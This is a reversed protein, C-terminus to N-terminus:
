PALAEFVRRRVEIENQGLRSPAQVMFIVFLDDQPDILFFTGGAGSWRYEGTSFPPTASTRVAFGLGFGSRPGPFYLYDRAIDPGLHDRTMLAVTESKLYRRGDLTGGNLMMQAFRGYDGITGIMGAGGSEWRRRQVPDDIGAVPRDFRDQPLPEAVRDRKSPDALGFATEKMGLPDLLRQKEFQYLSQGSIVEIVRGLVDFSHGYDWKTGPQEALPLRALPLLAQHASSSTLRVLLAGIVARVTVTVTWFVAPTAKAPWYVVKAPPAM